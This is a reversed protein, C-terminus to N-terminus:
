DSSCPTFHKAWNPWIFHGISKKGCPMKWQHTVSVVIWYWYLSGSPRTGSLPVRGLAAWLFWSNPVLHDTPSPVHRPAKCDSTWTCGDVQCLVCVPWEDLYCGLSFIIATELLYTTEKLPDRFVANWLVNRNMTHGIRSRVSQLNIFTQVTKHCHQIAPSTVNSKTM